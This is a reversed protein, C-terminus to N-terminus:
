LGALALNAKLHHLNTTTFLAHSVGPQALAHSLGESVTVRGRGASRARLTKALGYLDTVRRPWRLGQPSDGATEIAFVEMGTRSAELIRQREPDDLFPHVPVMMASALGEAIVRDLEAGRGAAGLVRFAGAAQLARLRAILAPTWERPDAGHLFLYDVGEVGLRSLSNVLSREIGEPSFDRNRRALGASSLGAKTSLTLADRDLAKLALGLRREAEGAGYAPATDFYTLGAQAAATILRVSAAESLLPTGHAGSVGFGLRSTITM